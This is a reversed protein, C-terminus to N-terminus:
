RMFVGSIKVFFELFPSSFIISELLFQKSKSRTILVHCDIAFLEANFPTHEGKSCKLFGYLHFLKNWGDDFRGETDTTDHVGDPFMVEM